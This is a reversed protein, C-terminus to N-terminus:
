EGLDIIVKNGKPTVLFNGEHLDELDLLKYAKTAGISDFFAEYDYGVDPHTGEIYEMAVISIKEGQDDFTYLHTKAVRWGRPLRVKSTRIRRFVNYEVENMDCFQDEEYHCIKYVVKDPSLYSTRYAGQGLMRWNKPMPGLGSKRRRYILKADDESGLKM